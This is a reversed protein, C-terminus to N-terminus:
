ILYRTIIAIILISLLIWFIFSLTIYAVQEFNEEQEMQELMDLTEHRGTPPRQPFFLALILLFILGVLLFSLWPVGMLTPGFPKIWVGGAWTVTFIILFLWFLGKRRGRRRTALVFVASLVAAVALAVLSEWIFM